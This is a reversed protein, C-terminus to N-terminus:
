LIGIPQESIFQLSLFVIKSRVMLRGVRNEVAAQDQAEDVPLDAMNTKSGHQSRSSVM